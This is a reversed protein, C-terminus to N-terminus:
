GGGKDGVNALRRNEGEENPSGLGEPKGLGPENPLINLLTYPILLKVGVPASWRSTVNLKGSGSMDM